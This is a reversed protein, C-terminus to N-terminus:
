KCFWPNHARRGQLNSKHPLSYTLSHDQRICQYHLKHAIIGLIIRRRESVLRHCPSIPQFAGSFIRLCPRHDRYLTFRWLVPFLPISYGIFILIMKALLWTCSILELQRQNLSRNTIEHMFHTLPCLLLQQNKVFFILLSQIYLSEGEVYRTTLALPYM